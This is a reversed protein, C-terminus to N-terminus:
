NMYTIVVLNFVVVRLAPEDTADVDVVSIVDYYFYALRPVSHTRAGM